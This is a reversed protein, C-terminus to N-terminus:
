TRKSAGRSGLRRPDPLDNPGQDGVLGTSLGATRSSPVARTHNHVFRPQRLYANLPNLTSGHYRPEIMSGFDMGPPMSSFFQPLQDGTVSFYRQTVRGNHIPAAEDDIREDGDLVPARNESDDNISTRSKVNAARLKSDWPLGHTANELRPGLTQVRDLAIGTGTSQTSRQHGHSSQSCAVTNTTTPLRSQATNGWENEDNFIHFAKKRGVKPLGHTLEREREDDDDHPDHDMNGYRPYTHQTPGLEALAKTSIASLNLAQTSTTPSTAKRVRLRKDVVHANTSLDTLIPHEVKSRKRKSLKPPPTLEKIPSSDVNGTILRQKKLSGDPWYIREMQEVTASNHEMQELVSNDKKQNRLRQADLSASDFLSMGPWKIGKLVPSQLISTSDKVSSDKANNKRIDLKMLPDRGIGCSSPGDLLDSRQLTAESPDPYAPRSPSRLFTQFYDSEGDTDYGLSLQQNNISKTSTTETMEHHPSSASQWASMRPVFARHHYDQYPQSLFPSPLIQHPTVALEESFSRQSDQDESLSLKALASPQRSKPRSAPEAHCLQPDLLGEVKVPSAHNESEALERPRRKRPKNYKTCAVTAPIAKTKSARSSCDKIDKSDKAIMRESLLKEIQYRDYWRDYAALKTRVSADQRARVQARFIQALHGKSAIHTLLHSIDSFEPEKPCINCRLPIFTM